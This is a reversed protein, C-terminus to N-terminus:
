ALPVTQVINRRIGIDECPHIGRIAVEQERKQYLLRGTGDAANGRHRHHGRRMVTRVALARITWPAYGVIGSLRVGSLLGSRAPGGPVPEIGPPLDGVADRLQLLDPMVCVLDVQDYHASREGTAIRFVLFPEHLPAEVSQVAHIGLGELLSLVPVAGRHPSADAHGYLRARIDERRLLDLTGHPQTRGADLESHLDEIVVDQLSHVPAVAGGLHASAGLIAPISTQLDAIVDHGTKRPGAGLVIQLAEAPHEVIGCVTRVHQLEVREEDYGAGAHVIHPVPAFVLRVVLPRCYLEERLHLGQNRLIDADLPYLPVDRRCLYDCPYGLAIDALLDCRVHLGM